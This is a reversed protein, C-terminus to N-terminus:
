LNMFYPSPVGKQMPVKTVEKVSTITLEIVPQGKANDRVSREMQLIDNRPILLDGQEPRYTELKHLINHLVVKAEDTIKTNLDFIQSWRNAYIALVRVEQWNVHIYGDEEIKMPQLLSKCNPCGRLGSQKLAFSNWEANCVQCRSDSKKFFLSMKTNTLQTTLM